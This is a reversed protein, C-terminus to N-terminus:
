TIVAVNISRTTDQNSYLIIREYMSLCTINDVMIPLIGWAVKEIFFYNNRCRDDMYQVTGGDKYFQWFLHRCLIFFRFVQFLGHM